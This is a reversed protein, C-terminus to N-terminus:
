LYQRLQNFLKENSSPRNANGEVIKGNKMIIYRPIGLIKKEGVGFKDYIDQSLAASALLNQGKLDYAKVMEKWKEKLNEKDLSVYLLSINNEKAFKRFDASKEFEERCPACWTAWLDVYIVKNRSLQELESFSKIARSNDVFVIEEGLEKDVREYYNVYQKHFPELFKIYKSEPYETVFDQYSGMVMRNRENIVTYTFYLISALMYERNKDQKSNESVAGYMDYFNGSHIHNNDEMTLMKTRLSNNEIWWLYYESHVESFIESSYKNLIDEYYPRISDVSEKSKIVKGNNTDYFNNTVNYLVFSDAIRYYIHISSKCLDYYAKSIKHQDLLYNLQDLELKEQNRVEALAKDYSKTKRFAEIGIDSFGLYKKGVRLTNYFYHGAANDGEFSISKNNKNFNVFVEDGPLLYLQAVLGSYAIRISRTDAPLEVFDKNEGDLYYTMKHGEFFHGDVTKYIQYEKVEDQDAHLHIKIPKNQVCSACLVIALMCFILRKLKM